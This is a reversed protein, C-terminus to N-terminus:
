DPLGGGIASTMICIKLRTQIETHEQAFGADASLPTCCRRATRAMRTLMLQLSQRDHQLCLIDILLIQGATLARHRDFQIQGVAQRDLDLRRRHTILFPIIAIKM